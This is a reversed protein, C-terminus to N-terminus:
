RGTEPNLPKMLDVAHTYRTFPRPRAIRRGVAYYSASENLLPLTARAATVRRYLARMLTARRDFSETVSIREVLDDVAPDDLGAFNAGGRSSFEARPDFNVFRGRDSSVAAQFAHGTLSRYVSGDDFRRINMNVGVRALDERVMTLLRVDKDSAALATFALTQKRGDVERVLAGGRGDDRWGAEKLLALAREPDHAPEGVAADAFPSQKYWPGIAKEAGGGFLHAIMGERDIALSLAQRVRPDQFLPDRLNLTIQSIGAPMGNRVDQIEFKPSPRGLARRRTVTEASLEAYDLEEREMMELARQDDAVFVFAMREARYRTRQDAVKRGWWHENRRLNIARGRAWSEAQYPGSGCITENFRAPNGGAGYIHAPLIKLSASQILNGFYKQRLRFRVRHRDIVDVGAFTAYFPRMFALQRAPDFIARFTFQVDAATM